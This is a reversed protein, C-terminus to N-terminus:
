RKGSTLIVCAGFTKKRGYWEMPYAAFLAGVVQGIPSGMSLGTQWPASIIYGGDYFYGFDRKFMDTRFGNATTALTPQM